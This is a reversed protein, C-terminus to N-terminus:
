LWCFVFVIFNKFYFFWCKNPDYMCTGQVELEMYMCKEYVNITNHLTYITSAILYLFFSALWKATSLTRQNTKHKQNARWQGAKYEIYETACYILLSFSIPVLTTHKIHTLLNKISPMVYVYEHWVFNGVIDRKQACYM